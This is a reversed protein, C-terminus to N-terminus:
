ADSYRHMIELVEPWRGLMADVCEPDFHAGRGHHLYERARAAPWAPKYPRVSTLADLVDAAAVIRGHLPIDAGSLGLPYGSGDFKEHHSHAIVAGAQLIPSAHSRLIQWGIITHQQMVVREGDTLPGPKLLIQDPTGIKGLDHLPAAQLLLDQEEVSMGLREGILRAFNAMRLIHAGTEPDRYEAARALAYLTDRENARIQATAQAVEAALHDARSSLRLYAQRLKLMNRIRVRFEQPEVPKNLFDTAGVELAKQRVARDNVATVMLIPVEDRGPLARVRQVLEIGDMGPMMYDVIYLDPDAGRCYALGQAPDSFASARSGPISEVLESLVDLNVQNDDVILVEM